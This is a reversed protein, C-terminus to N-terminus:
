PPAEMWIEVNTVHRGPVISVPTGPDPHLLVGSQARLRVSPAGALGDIAFWGDADALAGVMALEVGAGIEVADSALPADLWLVGDGERAERIVTATGAAAGISVRRVSDGVSVGRVLPGALRVWGASSVPTTGLRDAVRAFSRRTPDGIDIWSGTTLASRDSLFLLDDGRRAEALVTRPSGVPTSTRETVTTGAAIHHALPARLALPHVTPAAEVDEELLVRAGAVPGADVEMVHGQVRVPAPVLAVDGLSSATAPAITFTTLGDHYGAARVRVTVPGSARRTACTIAFQGDSMARARVEGRDLRLEFSGIATGRIADIVRGHALLQGRLVLDPMWRYARSGVLIERTAM